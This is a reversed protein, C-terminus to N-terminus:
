FSYAERGTRKYYDNAYSRAARGIDDKTIGFEKELIKTLIENQRRTESLEQYMVEVMERNGQYVANSIGETIQMNNAVVSKGNDFKGMIEGHNARFWGDEPFGGSAYYRVSFNPFGKLGLKQLAKAATGKTDWSVELHPMKIKATIESLSPKNNNWWKEASDWAYKLKSKIDFVTTSIQSLSPKNNNWWNRAEAWKEQLKSQISGIYPVKIEPLHVNNHWWNKIDIWKQQITGKIDGIYPVKIEPLHANNHWWNKASNWADQLKSKIDFIKTSIEKLIPKSNWWSQADSWKESLAIKISGIQSKWKEKTFWPKVYNSFFNKIAKPMEPFAGVFGEIIGQLIYKGFPEMSTAPSHIGFVTRIANITADLLDAIPEVITAMVGYIGNIIGLLINKGLEGWDREAFNKKTKGFFEKARRFISNSYNWNFIGDIIGKLISKGDIKISSLAGMIGGILAGAATGLVPVWSGALAGAAVGQVIKGFADKAWTPILEGLKEDIGLLLNGAILDFSATGIGNGGTLLSTLTTFVQSVIASNFKIANIGKIMLEKLSIKVTGVEKLIAKKFMDKIEKKFVFGGIIM